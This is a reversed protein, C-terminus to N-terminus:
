PKDRRHSHRERLDDQEARVTAVFGDRRSDSLLSSVV